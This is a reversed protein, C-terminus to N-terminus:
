RQRSTGRLHEPVSYPAPVQRMADWGSLGSLEELAHRMWINIWWMEEDLSRSHSLTLVDGRLRRNEVELDDVREKLRANELALDCIREVLPALDASAPTNTMHDAGTAIECRAGRPTASDLLQEHPTRVLATRSIGAVAPPFRVQAGGAPALM